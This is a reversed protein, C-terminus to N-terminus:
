HNDDNKENLLKENKSDDLFRFAPIHYDVDLDACINQLVSNGILMAKEKSMKDRQYSCGIKFIEISYEDPIYTFINNEGTKVIKYPGDYQPEQLHSDSDRTKLCKLREDEYAETRKAADVFTMDINIRARNALKSRTNETVGTEDYNIANQYDLLCRKKLRVATKKDLIGAQLSKFLAM